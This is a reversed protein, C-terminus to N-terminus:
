FQLHLVISVGLHSVGKFKARPFSLYKRKLLATKTFLVRQCKRKELQKFNVPRIKHKM